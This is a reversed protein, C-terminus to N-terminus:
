AFLWNENEINVLIFDFFFLALETSLSKNQMIAVLSGCYYSEVFLFM